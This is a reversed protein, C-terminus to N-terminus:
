RPPKGSLNGWPCLSGAPQTLAPFRSWRRSGKRHDRERTRSSRHALILQRGSKDNSTQEARSSEQAKRSVASKSLLKKTHVELSLEKQRPKCLKDWSNHCGKLTSISVNKISHQPQTGRYQAAEPGEPCLYACPWSLFIADHAVETDQFLQGSSTTIM